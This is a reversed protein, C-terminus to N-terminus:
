DDCDLIHIAINNGKKITFENSGAKKIISDGINYSYSERFGKVFKTEYINLSFSEKKNNIHAQMYNSRTNIFDIIGKLELEKTKCKYINYDKNELYMSYRVFLSLLLIIVIFYISGYNKKM